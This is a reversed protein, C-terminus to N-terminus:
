TNPNPNSLGNGARGNPPTTGLWTPAAMGALINSWASSRVLQNAPFVPHQSCGSRHRCLAARCFNVLSCATLQGLCFCAGPSARSRGALLAGHGFSVRRSQLELILGSVSSFDSGPCVWPIIPISPDTRGPKSSRRGAASRPTFSPAASDM